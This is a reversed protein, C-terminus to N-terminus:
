FRYKNIYLETPKTVMCLLLVNLMEKFALRLFMKKLCIENRYQIRSM